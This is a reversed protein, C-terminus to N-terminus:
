DEGSSSMAPPCADAAGGVRGEHSVSDFIRLMKSALAAWSHRSVSARTLDLDSELRGAMKLVLLHRLLLSLKGVDAECQWGRRLSELQVAAASRSSGIHLIPRSAGLYEYFKGPVQELQDNGIDVLVDAQRQRELAARHPLSGLLHIRDPHLRQWGLVSEPVQRSAITLRAGSTAIIAGILTDLRRFGYLSGTYVLELFESQESASSAQPASQDFGQTVVSIRAPSIGHREMLLERTADTTVTVHDAQMCVLRELKLAKKRWRLPTYRALVPDGLDAVWAVGAKRAELGLSLVSAPEHSTVLLDVGGQRLRRRLTRRAWPNWEGRIDPFILAGFWAQLHEISTGKWNVTAPGPEGQTGGHSARPQRALGRLWGVLGMFPGPFTRLVSCEAVAPLGDRGPALRPSIVTMSAGACALERVLYAWRLSQPSPSPPFEYAALLIRM